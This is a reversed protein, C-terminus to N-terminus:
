YFGLVSQLIMLSRVTDSKSALKFIIEFLNRNISVFSLVAPGGSM